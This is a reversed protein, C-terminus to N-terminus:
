GDVPNYKPDSYDTPKFVLKGMLYDLLKQPCKQRLTVVSHAIQKGSKWTTFAIYEMQEKGNKIVPKQELVNVCEIEDEWSGVPLPPEHAAGNSKRKKNSKAASVPDPTDEAGQSKRKRGRGKAAPTAPKFVPRGGVKKFYEELVESAGSLHEEPEWTRDAKSEYGAWKVEYKVVGDTEFAHSMIEEVVYEEEEEDDESGQEGDDEDPADSVDQVQAARPTSRSAATTKANKTSKAASKSAKTARAPIVDDAGDSVDSDDSVNQDIIM